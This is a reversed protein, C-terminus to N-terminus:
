LGGGRGRGTLGYIIARFMAFIAGVLAFALFVQLLYPILEALTEPPAIDQGIIGFFESIVQIM